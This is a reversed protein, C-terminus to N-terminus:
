ENPIEEEDFYLRNIEGILWDRLKQAARRPAVPFQEAEVHEPLGKISWRRVIACIGANWAADFKLAQEMTVTDGAVEVLLRDYERIAANWTLLDVAAMYTPLEVNGPFRPVPSEIAITPIAQM